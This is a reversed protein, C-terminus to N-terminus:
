QVSCPASPMFAAKMSLGSGGSDIWYPKSFGTRLLESAILWARTMWPHSARRLRPLKRKIQVDITRSLTTDPLRSAIPSARARARSLPATGLEPRGAQDLFAGTRKNGEGHFIM